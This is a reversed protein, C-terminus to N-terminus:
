RRTVYWFFGLFYASALVLSGRLWVLESPRAYWLLGVLAFWVVTGAVALVQM